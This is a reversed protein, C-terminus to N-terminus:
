KLTRYFLQNPNLYEQIFIVKNFIELPLLSANDKKKFKEITNILNKCCFILLWYM